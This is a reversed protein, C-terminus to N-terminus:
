RMSLIVIAFVAVVPGSTTADSLRGNLDSPLHEVRNFVRGYLQTEFYTESHCFWRSVKGEEWVLCLCFCLAARQWM